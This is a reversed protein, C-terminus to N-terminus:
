PKAVRMVQGGVYDTWYVFSADLAVLLAGQLSSALVTPGQPCGSKPCYVVTSTGANGNAEDAWYAGNGDVAIGSPTAENASLITPSM